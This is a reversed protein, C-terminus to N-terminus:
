NKYFDKGTRLILPDAVQKAKEHGFLAEILAVSFEISTGPGQSTILNKSRIVPASDTWKDELQNKM